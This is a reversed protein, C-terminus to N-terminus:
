RVPGRGANMPFKVESCDKYTRKACSSTKEIITVMQDTAIIMMLLTPILLKDPGIGFSSPFSCFRLRRYSNRKVKGRYVTRKMEAEIVTDEVSPKVFNIVKHSAHNHMYSNNFNVRESKRIIPFFQEQLPIPM